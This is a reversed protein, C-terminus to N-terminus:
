SIGEGVLSYLLMCQVEAGEENGFADLVEAVKMDSSQDDARINGRVNNAATIDDKTAKNSTAKEPDM